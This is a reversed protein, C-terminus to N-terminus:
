DTQQKGIRWWVWVESWTEAELTSVMQRTGFMSDVFRFLTVV